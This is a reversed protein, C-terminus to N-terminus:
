GASSNARRAKAASSMRRTSRRPAAQDRAERLLEILRPFQRRADYRQECRERARAALAAAREPQALLATIAEALAQPQGHPVLTGARGDDLLDAIGGVPSSLVPTGCAMAELLAWPNTDGYTPLCLLDAQQQLELLEPDGPKLRHVRLGPRPPVDDGTVVDLDVTRGLDEGLARLLDEGGKPAFRGGVFLLRARERERRPAPRYRALDIGPHHEVVRAEPVESEVGRRAWPTWALVVAAAGLARRELARSVAITAPAYRHSPRWAPMAWWDRITTDVSLAVPIARMTAPMLLAVSQTHLNVIDAPWARLEERLLRRARTSQVLHWRLARLDLGARALPAFPRTAAANAWPGMPTLSAFRADIGSTQTLGVKLAADLQGQGLIYTGLNGENFFLIRM